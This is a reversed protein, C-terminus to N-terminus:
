PEWEIWAGAVVSRNGEADVAEVDLRHRGAALAPRFEGTFGVRPHDPDNSAPFLMRVGPEDVRLLSGLMRGGLRAELREIGVGDRIAWGQLRLVARVRAGEAPAHLYGLAPPLCAPADPEGVVFGVLRKRGADVSHDFALRARPFKSCASRFWDPRERLRSASEELVLLFPAPGLERSLAGDDRGMRTLVGQRGHKANIPHDLSYVRRADGLGFALQAALMFHDAVVPSGPPLTELSRRSAGVAERWGTFGHLYLDGSALRVPETALVWILVFGAGLAAAAMALATEWAWRLRPGAAAIARPAVLACLLIGPMPWHLRSRETDVWPALLLFLALIALGVGAVVSAARDEERRAPRIAAVVLLVFLLPTSVAAQLLLDFLAESQFTWPHREVFQFGFGDGAERVQHWVLPGLGAANGVIGATWLPRRTLLGRGVPHVLLWMGAAALPVLFRYHSWWGLALGCALWYAGAPAAVALRRLGETCVLVALTLPVDPVALLGNAAFLPLLLALTGALPSFRRGLVAGGIRAALWATALSTLLFPLRVAWEAHGGITTGLRILWPTLAPVDDYAPALHRSELWYFAEDGFLPLRWALLVKAATLAFLVLWWTRAARSM